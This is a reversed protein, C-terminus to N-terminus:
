FLILQKRIKGRYFCLVPLKFITPVGWLAIGRASPSMTKYLTVYAGKIHLKAM